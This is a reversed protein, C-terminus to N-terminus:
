DALVVQGRAPLAIRVDSRGLRANLYRLAARACAEDCASFESVQGDDLRHWWRPLHKESWNARPCLPNLCGFTPTPTHLKDVQVEQPLLRHRGVQPM